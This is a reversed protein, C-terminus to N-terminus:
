LGSSPAPFFFLLFLFPFLYYLFSLLFFSLFITTIVQKRAEGVDNAQQQRHVSINHRSTSESHAVAPSTYHKSTRNVATHETAATGPERKHGRISSMEMTSMTSGTSMCDHWSLCVTADGAILCQPM